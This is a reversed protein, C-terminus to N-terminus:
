WGLTGAADGFILKIKSGDNLKGVGVGSVSVGFGQARATISAMVQGTRGDDCTIKFLHKVKNKSGDTKFAGTNSTGDCTIDGNTATLTANKTSGHLIAMSGDFSGMLIEFDNPSKELKMGIDYGASCATLVLGVLGVLGFNLFSRM